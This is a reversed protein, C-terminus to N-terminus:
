EVVVHICKEVGIPTHGKDVIKICLERKGSSLKKFTYQGKLKKIVDVEKGDAYMHVHDGSPGPIVDYDMKLTDRVISGDKPSLIKVSGIEAFASSSMALILLIIGKPTNKIKM